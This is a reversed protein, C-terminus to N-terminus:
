TPPLNKKSNIRLEISPIARMHTSADTLRDAVAQEAGRLLHTVLVIAPMLRGRKWSQVGGFSRAKCSVAVVDKQESYLQLFVSTWDAIGRREPPWDPRKKTVM